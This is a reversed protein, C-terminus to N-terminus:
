LKKIIQFSKDADEFFQDLSHTFAYHITMGITQLLTLIPTLVLMAAAKLINSVALVVAVAFPLMTFFLGIKEAIAEGNVEEQWYWESFNKSLPALGLTLYDLVGFRYECKEEIVQCSGFLTQGIAWARGPVDLITKTEELPTFPYFKM